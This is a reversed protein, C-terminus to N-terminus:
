TSLTVQSQEPYNCKNEELRFTEIPRQVEETMLGCMM